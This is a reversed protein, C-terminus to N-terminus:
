PLRGGNPTNWTAVTDLEICQVLINCVYIEFDFIERVMLSHLPPGNRTPNHRAAHRALDLSSDRTNNELFVRKLM